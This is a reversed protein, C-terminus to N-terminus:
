RVVCMCLIYSYHFIDISSDNSMMIESFTCIFLFHDFSFSLMVREKQLLVCHYYCGYHVIRGSPETEKTQLLFFRRIYDINCAPEEVNVAAKSYPGNLGM